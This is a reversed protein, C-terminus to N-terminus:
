VAYAKVNIMMATFPHLLIQPPLEDRERKADVPRARALQLSREKRRRSCQLPAPAPLPFDIQWRSRVKVAILDIALGNFVELLQDGLRRHFLFCLRTQIKVPEDHALV